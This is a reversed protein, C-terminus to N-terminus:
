GSALKEMKLFKETVREPTFYGLPGGKYGAVMKYWMSFFAGNRLQEKDPFERIRTKAGAVIMPWNLLSIHDLVTGWFIETTGWFAQEFDILGSIETGDVIINGPNWDLKCLVNKGVDIDMDGFSEIAHISRGLTHNDYEPHESLLRKANEIIIDIQQSSNRGKFFKQSIFTKKEDRVELSALGGVYGGYDFSIREIDSEAGDIPAYTWGDRKGFLINLPSGSLKEIIIGEDPETSILEPMGACGQYYRYFGVEKKKKLAPDGRDNYKKLVCVVGDVIVEIVTSKKGQHELLRGAYDCEMNGSM